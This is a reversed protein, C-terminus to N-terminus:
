PSGGNFSNPVFADPGSPPLDGKGYCQSEKRKRKRKGNKKEKESKKKTKRLGFM